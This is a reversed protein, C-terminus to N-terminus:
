HGAVSSLVCRPEGKYGRVFVFFSNSYLHLIYLCAWMHCEEVFLCVFLCDIWWTVHGLGITSRALVNHHCVKFCLLELTLFIYINRLLHCLHMNCCFVCQGTWEWGSRAPQCTEESVSVSTQLVACILFWNSFVEITFVYKLLYHVTFDQSCVNCVAQRSLSMRPIDMYIYPLMVSQHIFVCCSPSIVVGRAVKTVIRDSMNQFLIGLYKQPM